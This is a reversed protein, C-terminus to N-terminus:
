NKVLIILNVGSKDCAGFSLSGNKECIIVEHYNAISGAPGTAGQPGQPGTAGQPGQPGIAGQPGQPGTAGQPGVEGQVGQPGVEGQVGQPGVEGQPGRAGTAGQLGQGGSPGQLGDAGELASQILRAEYIDSQKLLARLNKLVYKATSNPSQAAGQPGLILELVMPDLNKSIAIENIAPNESARATTNEYSLMFALVVFLTLLLRQLTITSKSEM